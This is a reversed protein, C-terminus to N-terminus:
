PAFPHPQWPAPTSAEGSNVGAGGGAGNAMATALTLDRAAPRGAREPRLGYVSFYRSYISCDIARGAEGRGKALM